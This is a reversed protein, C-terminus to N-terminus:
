SAETPHALVGLLREVRALLEHPSFPKVVYDNAGLALGRVIDAERNMTSLLIIPVDVYDPHQRLRRVLEFGDIGPMKIDSVVLDAPRELAGTYAETGTSYHAVDLGAKTLRHQIVTATVEDDEALLIRARDPRIGNLRSGVSGLGSRSARYLLREVETLTAGVDGSAGVWSLGASASVPVREGFPSDIRLASMREVAAALRSHAEELNWAGFAALIEAGTWRFLAAGSLGARLEAAVARLVQDGFARGHRRNLQLLRDPATLAVYIEGDQTAADAVLSRLSPLATARTPLGTLADVDPGRTWHSRRALQRLVHDRVTPYAVPKRLFADAGLALAEQELGAHDSLVLVPLLGTREDSRIRRLLARAADDLTPLGLIVLSVHSEDLLRRADLVSEVVSVRRDHAALLRGLSAAVHRDPEVVLIHHRRLVKNREQLVLGGATRQRVGTQPQVM